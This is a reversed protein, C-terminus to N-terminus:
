GHFVGNRFEGEYRNGNVYTKIGFGDPNDGLWEGEYTDGNEFNFLPKM